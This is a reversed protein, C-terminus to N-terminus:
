VGYEKKTAGHGLTFKKVQCKINYILSLICEERNYDPNFSIICVFYNTCKVHHM